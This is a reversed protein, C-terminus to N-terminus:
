LTSRLFYNCAAKLDLSKGNVYIPRDCMLEVNTYYGRREWKPSIVYYSEDVCVTLHSSGPPTPPRACTNGKHELIIPYMFKEGDYRTWVFKLGTSISHNVVKTERDKVPVFEFRTNHTIDWGYGAKAPLAVTTALTATALLALAKKM